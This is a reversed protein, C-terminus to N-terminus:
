APNGKRGFYLLLLAFAGSTFLLSIILVWETEIAPLGLNFHNALFVYYLLGLTLYLSAMLAILAAKGRVLATREDKVAFGAKKEKNIKWMYWLVIFFIVVILTAIIPLFIINDMINREMNGIIYM